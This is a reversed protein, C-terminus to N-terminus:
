RLVPFCSNFISVLLPISLLSFAFSSFMFQNVLNRNGGDREVVIPVATVPPVASEILILLAIDYQPKILMLCALTTLPFLINKVFVFKAVEWPFLTGKNKFDVYVSGGLIIMLIPLAMDGVMHLASLVFGPVYSHLGSLRIFTAILTAILVNNIIRDWRLKKGRGSFFLHSTSFFLSPFFMVFFFLSVLYKSDAGYLGTIIAFPFFLANQFFLSLAFERRLNKTSIFMLAGTMIATFATFGLWWLPLTWWFPFDAPRFNSLINVFVLSPLAIDLALPSLFGLAKEPLIKRSIVFFGLFGLGLLVCVSQFTSIFLDL